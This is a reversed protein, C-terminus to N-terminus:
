LRNAYLADIREAEGAFNFSEGRSKSISESKSESLQGGASLSGGGSLSAGVSVGAMAGAALTASLQGAAKLSEIVLSARRILQEMHGLYSQTQAEYFAINTRLEAEKASVELQAKATEAGAVATFRQTDAIYAQAGLQAVSLQSQIRTKEAELASVYQEVRLRNRQILVDARKVDIDTAASLGQILSAYARAEADIIGAKAAEGRVQAEYADFRTKEAQVKTAYAEVEKSFMEILARNTDVKTKAGDMQAKFIEVSTQLAQVRATYVRVQQENIQGRAIEAELQAKFVEIKTIEAKVLTDFVAAKTQYASMQANFLAVQANYVNIKAEVEFKAADFLRQAANLFINVFVNEAAIAQQVAFKINEIQWEAIKITLERNMAMKKVALDQRMQDARAAQMGTPMTFGRLSFEEAVSDVERMATLDERAAAREYMAQEVAAPIGSGGAWLQRIVTLVESMIEPRYAPESWQLVASIPTGEFEPTEADFTPLELGEFTPIDLQYLDPPPPLVINPDTPLTVTTLVPRTPLTGTDVPEPPDPIVFSTISPQFTPVLRPTIEAGDALTPAEPMQATIQGFSTPTVRPLNLDVPIEIELRPLTPPSGASFELNTDQLAEIAALASQSLENSTRTAQEIRSSVVDDISGVVAYAQDFVTPRPANRGDSM